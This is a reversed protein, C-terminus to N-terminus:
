CRSPLQGPDWDGASAPHRQDKRLKQHKQKLKLKVQFPNPKIYIYIYLITITSKITLWHFSTNMSSRDVSEMFLANYSVM